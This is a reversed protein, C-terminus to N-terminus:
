CKIFFFLFPSHFWTAFAALPWTWFWTLRLETWDVLWWNCISVSEDCIWGKVVCLLVIFVGTVGRVAQLNYFVNCLRTIWVRIGLVIYYINWNIIFYRCCHSSRTSGILNTSPLLYNLVLQHVDWGPQLELCRDDFNISARRHLGSRLFTSFIEVSTM